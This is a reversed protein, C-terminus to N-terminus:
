MFPVPVFTVIFVGVSVWGIWRRGRPVPRGPALVSPHTWGGRGVFLAVAVWVYWNWSLQALGILALLTVL